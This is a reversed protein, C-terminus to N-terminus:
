SAKAQNLDLTDYPYLYWCRFLGIYYVLWFLMLVVLFRYVKKNLDFQVILHLFSFIFCLFCFLRLTPLGIFFFRFLHMTYAFLGDNALSVDWRGMVRGLGLLSYIFKFQPYSMVELYKALGFLALYIEGLLGFLFVVKAFYRRPKPPIPTDVQESSHPEQSVANEGEPFHFYGVHVFNWQLFYPAIKLLDIEILTSNDTM